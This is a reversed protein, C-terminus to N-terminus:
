FTVPADLDGGGGPALFRDLEAATVLRRWHTRDVLHTPRDITEADGSWGDRTGACGVILSSGAPLEIRLCPGKGRSHRARWEFRGKGLAVPRQRAGSPLRVWLGDSDIELSSPKKKPRLFVWALLGLCAGVLILDGAPSPLVKSLIAGALVALSGGIIAPAHAYQARYPELGITTAPETSSSM